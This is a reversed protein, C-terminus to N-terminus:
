SSPCRPAAQLALLTDGHGQWGVSSRAGRPMDLRLWPSYAIRGDPADQRIRLCAPLHQSYRLAGREGPVVVTPEASVLRWRSGQAGRMQWQLVGRVGDWEIRVELPMAQVHQRWRQLREQASTKADVLRRSGPDWQWLVLGGGSLESLPLEDSILRPAATSRGLYPRLALAGANFWAMVDPSALLGQGGDTSTLVDFHARHVAHMTEIQRLARRSVSGSTALLALVLVAAVIRLAAAPHRRLAGLWAALALCLAAWPAFLYRENGKVLGPQQVLPLLPLALLVAVLVHLAPGRWRAAKTMLLHPKAVKSMGGRPAAPLAPRPASMVQWGGAVLLALIALAAGPRSWLLAPLGAFATAAAEADPLAGPDSVPTYGGVLDGLMVVRWPVYLLMVVLVPWSAATRRRWDGSAALWAALGLPLYVEKASAAVAFALGIAWPRWRLPHLSQRRVLWLVLLLAFLGEVYHRVMLLRTAQAVPVGVVFMVGAAAAAADGTDERLLLHLMWACCAIALLQHAYFAAPAAGFLALDIRYSLSLWPTLSYAILDQWARPDAFYRWPAHSWAHRLIQTDDCCWSGQLANGYLALVLALYAGLVAANLGAKAGIRM